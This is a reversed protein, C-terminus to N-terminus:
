VDDDGDDDDMGYMGYVGDEEMGGVYPVIELQGANM